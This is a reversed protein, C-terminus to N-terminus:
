KVQAQCVCNRELLFAGEEQHQFQSYQLTAVASRGCAIRVDHSKQPSSNNGEDFRKGGGQGLITAEVGLARWEMIVVLRVLCDDM